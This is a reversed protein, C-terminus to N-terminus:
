HYPSDFKDCCTGRDEQVDPGVLQPSCRMGPRWAGERVRVCVAGAAAWKGLKPSLLQGNGLVWIRFGSLLRYLLWLALSAVTFAGVWFLPTEARRLTEEANMWEM